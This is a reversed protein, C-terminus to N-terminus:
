PKYAAEELVEVPAPLNGGALVAAVEEARRRDFSGAVVVNLWTTAKVYYTALARGDYIVALYRGKNALTWSGLRKSGDDNLKCDVEWWGVGADSKFVTTSRVHDGTIIEPRAVIIYTEEGRSDLPLVDEGARLAAEAEAFTKFEPMPFPHPLAAVARVVMGQALLVKRVRETDAPASFRLELRNAGGDPQPRLECRVGLRKCRKRIVEATRRLARAAQAGEAKVALLLSTGGEQAGVQRATGALLLLAFALPSVYLTKM